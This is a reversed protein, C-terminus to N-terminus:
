IVESGRSAGAKRRVGAGVARSDAARSPRTAQPLARGAAEHAQPVPHDRAAAQAPAVRGRVQQLDESPGM